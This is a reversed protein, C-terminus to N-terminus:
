KILEIKTGTYYHALIQDYTYGANAYGIAGDQSMGVAHGWGKGVFTYGSSSATQSSTTSTNTTTSTTTNATIDKKVGNAGIITIKKYLDLQKTEGNATKIKLQNQQKTINKNKVYFNTSSGSNDSNGSNVTNDTNGSGNITYWQSNLGLFTRCRDRSIVVGKPNLTGKIVIEIPRGADSCKTIEISTVTGVGLSKLKESIQAVTYTVSWNYNAYKGSEYKDEVSRLYPFDTGWVNVASETKGGSSSFYLTEALSGNYTVVMDKTDDVAKNTNLNESAYGKYVHCETTTCLNFGYAVHKNIMKYAYTRAAIAQAKLAEPNSLAPMENPVVGYLYEEMSLVNIITMDSDTKRFFEVQGRFSNFKANGINISNPIENSLSKGRLLNKDSAYMFKVEGVSNVGYIRKDAKEIVTYTSDGLKTKVDAIASDASGKSTYFGLWVNWGSDTYVPYSDIGKKINDQVIKLADNYTSYNGGFQIHYPGSTPVVPDATEGIATYKLGNNTFFGDKRITIAEGENSNYVPFENNTASDFAFFSVGKNSSIDVQSQATTKFYLGIKVISNSTAYTYSSIACSFVLILLITSLFLYFKKM